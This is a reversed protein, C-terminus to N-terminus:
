WRGERPAGGKGSGTGAPGPAPATDGAARGRRRRRPAAARRERLPDAIGLPHTGARALVALEVRGAGAALLAAAVRAATTGTTLVDDVLLVHTAPLRSRARFRDRDAGDARADLLRVAPVDIARAVARALVEAHDIGRERVRRAPTTVWTVVDVAPDRAAVRQALPAALLPWGGRAGGLKATVVAASVPGRYDYVAITGAIPADAPWCAHAAGRPAACRRCGDGLVVVAQLCSACWPPAARARCALCRPPALLDLVAGGLLAVAASPSWAPAPM